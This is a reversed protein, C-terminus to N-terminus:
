CCLCMLVRDFLRFFGPDGPKCDPVKGVASVESECCYLNCYVTYLKCLLVTSDLFHVTCTSLRKSLTNYSDRSYVNRVISVLKLKKSTIIIRREFFM